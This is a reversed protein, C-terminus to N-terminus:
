GVGQFSSLMGGKVSRLPRETPLTLLFCEQLRDIAGKGRRCRLPLLYVVLKPSMKARVWRAGLKTAAYVLRDDREARMTYNREFALDVGRSPPGGLRM